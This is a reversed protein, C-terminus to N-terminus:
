VIRTIQEAQLRQYNVAVTVTREMPLITNNVLVLHIGSGLLTVGPIVVM